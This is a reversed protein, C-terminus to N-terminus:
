SFFIVAKLQLFDLLSCFIVLYINPQIEVMNEQYKDGASHKKNVLTVKNGVCQRRSLSFYHGM